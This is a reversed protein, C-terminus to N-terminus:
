KAVYEALFAKLQETAKGRHSIRNKEEASLEAFTQEYGDPIFIPDYGFGQEGKKEMAIQGRAIGEFTYEKGELTLAIVTRFQAGRDKQGMLKGLVKAMNANADRQLGAYRATVVGPEGHLADVELGTDEAFCDAKFNRKVHRAKQLANGQITKQTEPIEKTCGIEELGIIEFAGQLMENIERVKNPNHTAFVIKM